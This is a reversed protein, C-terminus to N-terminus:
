EDSNSEQEDSPKDETATHQDAPQGTMSLIKVDYRGILEEFMKQSLEQRKRSIYDNEVRPRIESLPPTHAPIQSDVLVLFQRDGNVHPETTWQGANLEFLTDTKGLDFHNQGRVIRQPEVASNVDADEDEESQRQNVLQKFDEASKVDQLLTMPDEDKSLSLVVAQMADPERYRDQEFKYYAEIDVDTPEIKALELAQFRSALLNDELSQRARLFDDKRDLHLERARRTFLETQLLEQFLRQRMEPASFQRLLTERMDNGQGGQLSLMQDVRREIMRDLDAEMLEEGALTALVNGKKVDSGGIEVRRSLERGVEGYLGLRRLCTVLNQGIKSKLENEDGVQECRVFAAAAQDFKEAQMYLKGIRYLIEPKDPADPTTDLYNEWSRAAQDDLSKNELEIALDRLESGSTKSGSGQKREYSDRLLLQAVGATIILQLIVLLFLTFQPFWGRTGTEARRQLKGPPADLALNPKREDNM